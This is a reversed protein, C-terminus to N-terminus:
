CLVCVTSWWRAYRAHTATDGPRGTIVAEPNTWVAKDWPPSTGADFRANAGRAEDAPVLVVDAGNGDGSWSDGALDIGQRDFSGAHSGAARYVPAPYPAWDGKALEWWPRRGSWGLHASVRAGVVTGDARLKVIVAEWDDAHAGDLQRIGTRATRSEPIYQWYQLYVFGGRRVAHVFLVAPGTRACAASRCRRFDVPRLDDGREPVFVPAHRKALELMARDGTASKAFASRAAVALGLLLALVLLGVGAYEVSAQGRQGM